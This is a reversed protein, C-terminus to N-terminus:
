GRLSVVTGVQGGYLLEAVPHSVHTGEPHAMVVVGMVHPVRLVPFKRPCSESLKAMNM